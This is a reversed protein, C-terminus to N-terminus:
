RIPQTDMWDSAASFYSLLWVVALSAGFFTHLARIFQFYRCRVFVQKSSASWHQVSLYHLCHVVRTWRYVDVMLKNKQSTQVLHLRM